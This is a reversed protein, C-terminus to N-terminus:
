RYKANSSKPITNVREPRGRALADRPVTGENSERRFEQSRCRRGRKLSGKRVDELAVLQGDRQHWIAVTYNMPSSPTKLLYTRTIHYLLNCSLTTTTLSARLINSSRSVCSYLLVILTTYRINKRTPIQGETHCLRPQESARLIM